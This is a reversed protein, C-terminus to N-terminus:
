CAHFRLREHFNKPENKDEHAPIEIYAVCSDTRFRTFSTFIRIIIKM